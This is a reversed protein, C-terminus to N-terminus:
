NMFSKIAYVAALVAGLLAAIKALGVWRAGTLSGMAALEANQQRELGVWDIDGRLHRLADRAAIARRFGEVDWTVTKYTETRGNWGLRTTSDIDTSALQSRLGGRLGDFEDVNAGTAALADRADGLHNWVEPMTQQAEGLRLELESVQQPGYSMGPKMLVAVRELLASAVQISRM